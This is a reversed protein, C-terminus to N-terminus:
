TSCIYKPTTTLDWRTGHPLIGFQKPLFQVIFFGKCILGNLVMNQGKKAMNFAM